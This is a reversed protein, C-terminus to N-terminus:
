TTRKSIVRAFLTHWEFSAWSSISSVAYTTTSRIFFEAMTEDM